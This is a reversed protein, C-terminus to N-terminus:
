RRVICAGPRAWAHWHTSSRGSGSVRDLAQCRAYGSKELIGALLRDSLMGGPFGAGLAAIVLAIRVATSFPADRDHPSARLHLAVLLATCALCAGALFGLLRSSIADVEVLPQRSGAADLASWVSWTGLAALLCAGVAVAPLGRLPLM